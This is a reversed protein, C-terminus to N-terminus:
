DKKLEEVQPLLFTDSNINVSILTDVYTLKSNSYENVAFYKGM